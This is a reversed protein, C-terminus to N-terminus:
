LLRNIFGVSSIIATRVDRSAIDVSEAIERAMSNTLGDSVVRDLGIAVVVHQNSSASDARALQNMFYELGVVGGECFM